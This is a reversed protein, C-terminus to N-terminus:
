VIEDGRGDCREPGYRDPTIAAYIRVCCQQGYVPLREFITVAM